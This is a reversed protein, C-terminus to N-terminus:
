NVTAGHFTAPDRGSQCIARLAIVPRKAWFVVQLNDWAEIAPPIPTVQQRFHGIYAERGDPGTVYTREYREWTWPQDM